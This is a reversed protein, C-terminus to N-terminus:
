KWVLSMGFCICVTFGLFELIGSSLYRNIESFGRLPLLFLLRQHPLVWGLHVFLLLGRVEASVQQMGFGIHHPYLLEIAYLRPKYGFFTPSDYNLVWTMSSHIKSTISIALYCFLQPLEFALFRLAVSLAQFNTGGKVWFPILLFSLPVQSM